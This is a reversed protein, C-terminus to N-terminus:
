GHSFKPNFNGLFIIRVNTLTEECSGVVEKLRSKEYEKINIADKANFSEQEDEKEISTM